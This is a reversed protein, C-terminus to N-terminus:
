SPELLDLKSGSQSLEARGFFTPEVMGTVKMYIYKKKVCQARKGTIFNCQPIFLSYLSSWKLFVPQVLM